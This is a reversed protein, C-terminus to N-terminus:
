QLASKGWKATFSNVSKYNEIERGVNVIFIKNLKSDASINYSKVVLAVFVSYYKSVSACFMLSWHFDFHSRICIIQLVKNKTILSKM